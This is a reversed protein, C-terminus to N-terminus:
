RIKLLAEEYKKEVSSWDLVSWFSDLYDARKNQYALYYAHEWVDIGLIPFGRNMSLVDMMPNDQNPTSSVALSGNFKVYLWVWGSGFQGLGAKKMEAKLNELSGFTTTIVDNLPGEPNLKPSPSIVEWFLSHNYHGGGNNRVAPSYESIRQLLSDLDPNIENTQELAANLNDVYAQHHRQHHITMTEKDIFPELADYAYSLQPLTFPKM